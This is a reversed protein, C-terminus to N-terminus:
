RRRATAARLAIWALYGLLLTLLAAVLTSFELVAGFAPQQADLFAFPARLPATLNLLLAYAPNDPRSAFLRMTLRALLLAEIIGVIWAVPLIGVLNPASAHMKKAPQTTM